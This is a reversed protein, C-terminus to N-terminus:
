SQFTVVSSQASPMVFMVKAQSKSAIGYIYGIIVPSSYLLSYYKNEKFHFYLSKSIIKM